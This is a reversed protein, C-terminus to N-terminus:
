KTIQFTQWSRMKQIAGVYKGIWLIKRGSFTAQGIGVIWLRHLDLCPCAPGVRLMKRM